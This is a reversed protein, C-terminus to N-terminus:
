LLGHESNRETRTVKKIVIIAGIYSNDDSIWSDKIVSMAKGEDEFPKASDFSSLSYEDGHGSLWNTFEQLPGDSYYRGKYRIGVFYTTKTTEKVQEDTNKPYLVDDYCSCYGKGISDEGIIGTGNCRKCSGM